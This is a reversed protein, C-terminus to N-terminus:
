QRLDEAERAEARIMLAKSQAFRGITYGRVKAELLGEGGLREFLSVATAVDREAPGDGERLCVAYSYRAPGVDCACHFARM